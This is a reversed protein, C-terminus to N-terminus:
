RELLNGPLQRKGDVPHHALAREIIRFQRRQRDLLRAAVQDLRHEQEAGVPRRQRPKTMRLRHVGALHQDLPADRRDVLVQRAPLQKARGEVVCVPQEVRFESAVCGDIRGLRSFITVFPHHANGVNQPVLPQDLIIRQGIGRARHGVDGAGRGFIRHAAICPQLRQRATVLPEQECEGIRGLAAIRAAMGEHAFDADALDIDLHHDGFEAERHHDPPHLEGLALHDVLELSRGLHRRLEGTPIAEHEALGLALRHRHRQAVPREPCAFEALVDDRRGLVLFEHQRMAVIHLRCAEDLMELQRMVDVELGLEVQHPAHTGFM